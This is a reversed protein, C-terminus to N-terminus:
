SNLFKIIDKQEDESYSYLEVFLLTISSCLVEENYSKGYANCIQLRVPSSINDINLLLYEADRNIEHKLKVTGLFEGEIKNFVPYIIDLIIV